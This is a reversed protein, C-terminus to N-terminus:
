LTEEGKKVPYRLEERGGEKGGEKEVGERGGLDHTDEIQTLSHGSNLTLLLAPGNAEVSRLLNPVRSM